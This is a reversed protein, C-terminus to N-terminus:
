IAPLHLGHKWAQLAFIIRAHLQDPRQLVHTFGRHEGPRLRAAQGEEGTATRCGCAFLVGLARFDFSQDRGKRRVIRLDFGVKEIGYFIYIDGLNEAPPVSVQLFM